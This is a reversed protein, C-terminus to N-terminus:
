VVVVISAKVAAADDASGLRMLASGLEASHDTAAAAAASGKAVEIM